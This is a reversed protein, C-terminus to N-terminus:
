AACLAELWAGWASVGALMLVSTMRHAACHPPASRLLLRGEWPKSGSVVLKCRAEGGGSVMLIYGEAPQLAVGVLQVVRSHRMRWLM